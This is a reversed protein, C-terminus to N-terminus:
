SSVVTCSCSCCVQTKLHLQMLTFRSCHFHICLICFHLLQLFPLFPSPHFDLVLSNSNSRAALELLSSSITTPISSFSLHTLLCFRPLLSGCLRHHPHYFLRFAFKQSISLCDSLQCHPSHLLFLALITILAAAM